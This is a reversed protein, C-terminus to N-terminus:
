RAPPSPRELSIPTPRRMRPSGTFRPATNASSDTLTLNINASGFTEGPTQGSITVNQLETFFGLNNYNLTTANANIQPITLSVPSPVSNGSSILSISTLSGIEPIGDFPSYAGSVSISDGVTPVYSSGSPLHGFLEVSGTGDTALIAYNGYTHGNVTGPYSAIDTITAATLNVATGTPNGEITSINDAFATTGLVCAAIGLPLAHNKM